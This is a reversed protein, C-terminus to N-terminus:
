GSVKAFVSEVYDRLNKPEDPTREPVLTKLAAIVTQIEDKHQKTTLCGPTKTPEVRALELALEAILFAKEQASQAERVLAKVFAMVGVPGHLRWQLIEVTAVPRELRERLANFAWSIRRTRQLLFSSTDVRKHPDVITQEGDKAKVRERRRLYDQLVRHLPRSSTLINMLVELPLDALEEPPPLARGSFVNIPWWASGGSGTWRVWFGSPPRTADWDVRCSAPRSRTLWQAEGFFPQESGDPMLEWGSPPEGVFTVTITARGQDDRDYVAEGFAKPLLVGDCVADEGEGTLPSWRVDGALDVTESDPFTTELSKGAKEDRNCDVIYVLNAETNPAQGLGTGASTFNSSGISYVAWREDELWIGKAHLPRGQDLCVRYFATAASGRLPQAELLSRPAHLLVASEGPIDEASVHFAVKAEGRQRVLGWLEEAAANPVEPPDFFPSVVSAHTAPPGGPWLNRLSEFLNPYGPGSFIATVRVASRSFEDDALGWARADRLARDLLQNWRGLAPSSTGTSAKSHEAVRRLFRVTDTLCSLPSEGDEHFDIIGFVEQNRRYGDDTLNASAIVVRILKSWSLLSVKAHQLGRPMRAPLLDWRLSRNGRCHHQDVLAAACVLQALKEEREVLYVPGDEAPDSELQLFRALCEEEFFAPSFTFSTALCGVAEGADDPAVWADLLKGRGPKSEHKKKGM